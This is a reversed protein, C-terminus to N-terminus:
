INFRGRHTFFSVVFYDVSTDYITQVGGMGSGISVGFRDKDGNYEILKADRMAQDVACLAYIVDRGMKRQERADIVADPNFEGDGDGCLPIGAIQSAFESADFLDIKRVGSVGNLINKWAYEVGTGVPCVIGMGTIVVRKM